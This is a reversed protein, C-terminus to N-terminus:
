GGQAAAANWAAQVAGLKTDLNVQATSILPDARVGSLYAQMDPDPAEGEKASVRENDLADRLTVWDAQTRDKVCDPLPPHWTAQNVATKTLTTVVEQSLGDTGAAFVSGLVSTRSATAATFETVAADLATVDDQNGLGSQVKRILADRANIATALRTDAEAITTVHQALWTKVATVAATTENASAGAVALNEAQLGVRYLATVLEQDLQPKKAKAVPVAGGPAVDNKDGRDRIAPAFAVSLIVAASVLWAASTGLSM